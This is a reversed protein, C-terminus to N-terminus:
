HLYNGCNVSNSNSYKLLINSNFETTHQSEREFLQFYKITSNTDEESKILKYM